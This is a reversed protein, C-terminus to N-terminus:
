DEVKFFMPEGSAVHQAIWAACFPTRHNNSLIRVWVQPSGCACPESADAYEKARPM